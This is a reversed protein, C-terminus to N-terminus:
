RDDRDPQTGPLTSGLAHQPIAHRLSQYLSVTKVELGERVAAKCSRLWCAPPEFSCRLWSAM